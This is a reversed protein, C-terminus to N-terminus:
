KCNTEIQKNEFTRGLASITRQIGGSNIADRLVDITMGEIQSIERLDDQEEASAEEFGPLDTVDEISKAYENLIITINEVNWETIEKMLQEMIDSPINFLAAIAPFDKKLDTIDDLGSKALKKNLARIARHVDSETFKNLQGKKKKTKKITIGEKKYKQKPAKFDSNIEFEVINQITYAIKTPDNNIPRGKLWTTTNEKVFQTYEVETLKPSGEKNLMVLSVKKGKTNLHKISANFKISGEKMYNELQALGTELNTDDLRNASTLGHKLYFVGNDEIFQLKVISSRKDKIATEFSVRGFKNTSEIVTTFSSLVQNIGKVTLVDIGKNAYMKSVENPQRSIFAKIVELAPKYIEETLHKTALTEAHYMMHGNYKGTPVLIIPSGVYSRVDEYNLINDPSINGNNQVKNTTIIGMPLNEQIAESTPSGGRKRSFAFGKYMGPITKGYETVREPTYYFIKRTVKGKVEKGALTNDIVARRNANLNAVEEEISVNNEPNKDDEIEVTRTEIWEPVHMYGLVEANTGNIIIPIIDYASEIKGDSMSKILADANDVLNGDKFIKDRVQAWPYGIVTGKYEFDITFSIAEGGNYKDSHVIPSIDYKSEERAEIRYGYRPHMGELYSESLHAISQSPRKNWSIRGIENKVSGAEAEKEKINVVRNNSNNRISELYDKYAKYSKHVVKVHPSLLPNTEWGKFINKILNWNNAITDETLISELYSVFDNFNKKITQGYKNDIDQVAKVAFESVAKPLLTLSIKQIQKNINKILERGKAIIQEKLTLDSTDSGETEEKVQDAKDILNKQELVIDAIEQFLEEPLKEKSAVEGTNKTRRVEKNVERDQTKKANKVASTNKINNDIFTSVLDKFTKEAISGKVVKKIDSKIRSIMDPPIQMERAVMAADVARDIIDTTVELIPTDALKEKVKTAVEQVKTKLEQAKAKVEKPVRKTVEKSIGKFNIKFKRSKPTPKSDTVRAVAAAYEQTFMLDPYVRDFNDLANITTVKSLGELAKDRIEREIAFNTLRIQNKRSSKEKIVNNVVDIKKQIDVLTSKINKIQVKATETPEGTQRDKYEPSLMLTNLDDNVVEYTANLTESQNIYYLVEEKNKLHSVRKLKQKNEQIYKYLTAADSDTDKVDAAHKELSPLTGKAIADLVMSNYVNRRVIEEKQRNGGTLETLKAVTEARDMRVSLEPNGLSNLGKSAYALDEPTSSLNEMMKYMVGVGNQVKLLNRQRLKVWDLVDEEEEKHRSERKFRFAGIPGKELVRAGFSQIPGSLAGIIGELLVDDQQLYDSVRQSFETSVDPNEWEGYRKFTKLIESNKNRKELEKLAAYQGEKSVISQYM